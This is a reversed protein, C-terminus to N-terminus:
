IHGALLQELTPALKLTELRNLRAGTLKKKYLLGGDWLEYGGTGQFVVWYDAGARIILRAFTLQSSGGFVASFCSVLSVHISSQKTEIVTTHGQKIIQHDGPQAPLFTNASHTDYFRHYFMPEREMRANFYSAVDNELKKWAPIEAHPGRHSRPKQKILKVRGKDTIQM